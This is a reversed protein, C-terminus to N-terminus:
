KTEADIADYEAQMDANAAISALDRKATDIRARLAKGATMLDPESMGALENFSPAPINFKAAEELLVGIRDLV